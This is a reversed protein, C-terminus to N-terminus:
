STALKSILPGTEEKDLAPNGPPGDSKNDVSDIFRPEVVSPPMLLVDSGLPQEIGVDISARRYEDFPQQMVQRVSVYAELYTMRTSCEFPLGAFGPLAPSKM